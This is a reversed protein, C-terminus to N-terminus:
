TQMHRFPNYWNERQEFGTRRSRRGKRRMSRDVIYCLSDLCVYSCILVNPVVAMCPSGDGEHQMCCSVQIFTQSHLTTNAQQLGVSQEQDQELALSYISFLPMHPQFLCM